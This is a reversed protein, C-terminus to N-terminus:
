FDDPPINKITGTGGSEGGIKLDRHLYGDSVMKVSYGTRGGVICDGPTPQDEPMWQFPVKDPTLTGAVVRTQCKGFRATDLSYDVLSKGIWSTLLHEPKLVHYSLKEMDLKGAAQLLVTQGIQDKVGVKELEPTAKLRGGFDPRMVFPSTYGIQGLLKGAKIRKYYNDYFNPEISYYTIDFIDPAVAMTELERLRTPSNNAENWSLIDGEEFTAMKQVTPWFGLRPEYLPNTKVPPNDPLDFLAKHWYAISLSSRMGSQDGPYRAFNPWSGAGTPDFATGGAANSRVPTQEDIRQGSKTETDAPGWSDMYWPGFRGGFPKAFARATLTISGFPSFPIAPTAKATVGVYAMCWPNKEYGLTWAFLFQADDFDQGLVLARSNVQSQLASDLNAMEAPLPSNSPPNGLVIDKAFTNFGTGSTMQLDAYQFKPTIQIEAAWKPPQFPSGGTSACEAVGLGNLFRFDDDKLGERNPDSLNKKLTKLAAERVSEGDIDLFDSDAESVKKMMKLLLNKRVHVDLKYAIMFDALKMYNVAGVYRVSGKAQDLAAAISNDLQKLVSFGPFVGAINPPNFLKTEDIGAMDKCLSQQPPSEAYIEYGVCFPPLNIYQNREGDPFIRAEDTDIVVTENQYNYPNARKGANNNAEGAMGLVRYRWVMLKWSQRLQYNLHAMANFMEAQKMAGYYASLDVSNQLNIKHHVLLGVNVVMAFIVFLLQFILAIFIAM